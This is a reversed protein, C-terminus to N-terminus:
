SYFVFFSLFYNIQLFYCIPFIITFRFLFYSLSSSVTAYTGRTYFRVSEERTWLILTTSTGANIERPDFICCFSVRGRVRVRVRVNVRVGISDRICHWYKNAQCCVATLQNNHIIFSLWKTLCRLNRLSFSFIVSVAYSTLATKFEFNIWTRSFGQHAYSM